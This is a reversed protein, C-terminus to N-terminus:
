ADNVMPRVEIGLPWAATGSRGASAAEAFVTWAPSRTSTMPCREASSAADTSARLTVTRAIVAGLVDPSRFDATSVGMTMTMVSGYVALSSARADNAPGTANVM